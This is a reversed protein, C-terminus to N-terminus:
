SYGLYGNFHLIVEEYLVLINCNEIYNKKNTKLLAHSGNTNAETFFSREEKCIHSLVFKCAIIQM